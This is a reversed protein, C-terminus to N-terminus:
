SELRGSIQVLKLLVKWTVVSAVIFGLMGVSIVIWVASKMAPLLKQPLDSNSLIVAPIRQMNWFPLSYWAMHPESLPDANFFRSPLPTRFQSTGTPWPVTSSNDTSEVLLAVLGPCETPQAFNELWM